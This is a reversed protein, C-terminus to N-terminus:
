RARIIILIQILEFLADLRNPLIRFAYGSNLFYRNKESEVSRASQNLRFDQVGSIRSQVRAGDLCHLACRGERRNGLAQFIEGIGGQAHLKCHTDAHATSHPRAM